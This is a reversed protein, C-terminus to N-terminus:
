GLVAQKLYDKLARRLEQILDWSRDPSGDNVLIIEFETRLPELVALLQLVMPKLTGESRYVPVLISLTPTVNAMAIAKGFGACQICTM